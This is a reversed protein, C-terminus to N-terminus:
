KFNVRGHRGWGRQAVRQRYAASEFVEPNVSNEAREGRALAVANTAAMVAMSSRTDYSASGIHPLLVVNPLEALGPSLSPEDEYVDLAAGAIWRERLAQVLAKEDVVPGRSVNILYATSKMARLQERGILHYTEPTLPPHLTVFDSRELLEPLDVITAIEDASKGPSSALVEMDFGLARRAVARGIRGYGVIGLTKKRGSGGPSVDAGLFLSPRWMEFRGSSVYDHAQPISRAVALIMAWTCDATTETLVGPTNTVPIGLETALKVDINNFGVAVNAVGLLKPHAELVERDVTETLLAVLVDCSQMADLLDDRTPSLDENEQIVVVEASDRLVQLGAEPIRRTVVIRPAM